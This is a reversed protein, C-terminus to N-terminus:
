SWFIVYFYIIDLEADEGFIKAVKGRKLLAKEM